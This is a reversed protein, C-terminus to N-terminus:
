ISKQFYFRCNSNNTRERGVAGGGVVLIMSSFFKVFIIKFSLLKKIKDNNKPTALEVAAMVQPIGSGRSYPAFKKVLWWASIFCAPSIIFLLWAHYHFIVTTFNEAMAFSQAYVIAALGTLFSAVWFPLAQLLNQRLRENRIQDFLHKLKFRTKSIFHVLRISMKEAIRKM